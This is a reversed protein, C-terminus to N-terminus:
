MFSRIIAAVLAVVAAGLICMQWRLMTSEKKEILSKISELQTGIKAVDERTAFHEMQTELRVIRESYGSTGNGSGTPTGQPVRFQHVNKPDTM